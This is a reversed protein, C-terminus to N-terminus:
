KKSVKKIKIQPFTKVTFKKRQLIKENEPTHPCNYRHVERYAAGIENLIRGTFPEEWFTEWGDANKPWMTGDMRRIRKDTRKIRKWGRRKLLSLDTENPKKSHHNM